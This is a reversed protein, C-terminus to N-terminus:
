VCIVLVSVVTDKLGKQPRCTIEQDSRSEEFTRTVDNLSALRKRGPATQGVSEHSVIWGRHKKPLFQLLPNTPKTHRITGGPFLFESPAVQLLTVIYSCCNVTQLGQNRCSYDLRTSIWGVACP